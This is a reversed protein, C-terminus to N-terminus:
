FAMWCNGGCMGRELGAVGRVRVHSLDLSHLTETVRFGLCKAFPFVAQTHTVQVAGLGKLTALLTLLGTWHGSRRGPSPPGM